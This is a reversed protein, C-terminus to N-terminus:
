CACRAVKGKLGAWHPIHHSGSSFDYLVFFNHNSPGDEEGWSTETRELGGGKVFGSNFVTLMHLVLECFYSLLHFDWCPNILLEM